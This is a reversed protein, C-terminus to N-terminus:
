SLTTWDRVDLVDPEAEARNRFRASAHDRVDCTDIRDSGIRDSKLHSANHNPGDLLIFAAQFLTTNTTKREKREEKTRLQRSVVPTSRHGSRNHETEPNGM